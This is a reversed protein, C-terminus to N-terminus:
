LGTMWDYITDIYDMKGQKEIKIRAEGRRVTRLLRVGIIDCTKEFGSLIKDDTFSQRYVNKEDTTM